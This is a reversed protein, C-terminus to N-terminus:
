FRSSSPPTSRQTGEEPDRKLTNCVVTVDPYGAFGTAVARVRLDAGFVRCRKGELQRNLVATVAAALGTHDSTGGALALIM